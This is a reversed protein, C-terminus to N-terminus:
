ENILSLLSGHARGNSAVCNRDSIRWPNGTWDTVSGGAERVLLCGAAVDWPNVHYMLAADFSGRSVLCLEQECSLLMRLGDVKFLLREINKLIVTREENGYTLNSSITFRDLSDFKSVSLRNDNLFAGKGVHATYLHGLMPNYVVSAVPSQQASLCIAVTFLEFGRVFNTTGDLPDVLWILEDSLPIPEGEETLIPIEPTSQSIKDVILQQAATDTETVLDRLNTKTRIQAQKGFQERILSGAAQAASVAAKLHKEYSEM